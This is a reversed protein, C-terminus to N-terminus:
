IKINCIPVSERKHNSNKIYNQVLVVDNKEFEALDSEQEIAILIKDAMEYTIGLEEEDSQGEWLGATPPTDIIEQPVGIHKALARVETKYLDGLPLIDVGGDGYKTSYGLM